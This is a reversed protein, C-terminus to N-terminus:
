IPVEQKIIPTLSSFFLLLPVEGKECCCMVNVGFTALTIFEFKACDLRVGRYTIFALEDCERGRCVHM